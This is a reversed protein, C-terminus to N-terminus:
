LSADDGKKILHVLVTAPDFEFRKYGFDYSQPRAHHNNHYGIGWCLLGFLYYNVSNDKTDFNRYGGKSHCFLSVMFELHLSIIQAIVVIYFIQPSIAYVTIWTIWIIPFYYNHLFLQDKKRMLRFVSNYKLDRYNVQVSWLFYSWLKGHIPSQIDKATDSYPHHYGRHINVWFIPSGQIALCGFYSIVTEIIPWTKFSNHSLLRHFAVGIGYGSILTWFLLLVLISSLDITIKMISVILFIHAPLFIFWFYSNLKKNM